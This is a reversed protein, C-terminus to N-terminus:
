IDVYVPRAGHSNSDGKGHLRIDENRHHLRVRFLLARQEGDVGVRARGESEYSRFSQETEVDRFSQTVTKTSAM